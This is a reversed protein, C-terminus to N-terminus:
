KPAKIGFEAFKSEFPRYADKAAAMYLEGIKNVQGLFSDYAEKAYGQQLEFVKDLSKAQTAQEFAQTGKEFSKRSFDATEAAIAQFGKTLATASAVYADLSEKGFAQFDEFSKMM